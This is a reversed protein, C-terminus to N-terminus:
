GKTASGVEFARITGQDRVYLTTGVLTPVTWTKGDSITTRSLVTMGEPSLELLALGGQGDLLITREGANVLNAQRFRRESWVIEGTRIDTCALKTGYGGISAYVHDGVRIANWFHISVKDNSWIRHVLTANDTRELHFVQTGGEPQTAVWLLHDEGWIPTSINDRNRNFSTRGWIREGTRADLGIIEDESQYVLQERGDVDIVIPTGYSILGPGSRWIVSGDAPDLAVVAQRDGGVLVIVSEEFHVPCSSNGYELVQGALDHVLHLSWLLRGTGIDLCNLTGGFGLTVLRDDLPLPMANPGSGYQLDSQNHFTARYRYEWITVGTEARLAIVVDEEDDRFITFLSGRDCAIASYGAGLDRSWILPPGKSPWTGALESAPVEFDGAPGGWRQRALEPGPAASPPPADGKVLTTAPAPEQACSLLSASGLLGTCIALAGRRRGASFSSISSM